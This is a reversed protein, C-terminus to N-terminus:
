ASYPSGGTGVHSLRGAEARPPLPGPCSGGDNRSPTMARVPPLDAVFPSMIWRELAPREKCNETSTCIYWQHCRTVDLGLYRSPLPWLWAPRSGGPRGARAPLEGPPPRFKGATYSRPRPVVGPFRSGSGLRLYLRHLRHEVLDSRVLMLRNKDLGPDFRRPGHQPPAALEWPSPPSSLAASQAPFPPAGSFTRSTKATSSVRSPANRIKQIVIPRITAREKPANLCKLRASSRCSRPLASPNHRPM